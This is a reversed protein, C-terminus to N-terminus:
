DLQAALIVEDTQPEIYYADNGIIALNIAHLSQDPPLPTQFLANYESEEIIEFSMIYGDTLAQHQLELAYDDCDIITDPSQFRFTTVNQRDELWQTLEELDGFNGLEVPVRKVQNVYEIKSVTKEAYQVTHTEVLRSTVVPQFGTTLRTDTNTTTQPESLTQGIVIGTSFVIALTAMIGLTKIVIAFKNNRNNRM